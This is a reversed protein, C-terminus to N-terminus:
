LADGLLFSLFSLVDILADFNKQKNENDRMSLGQQPPFRIIVIVWGAENRKVIRMITTATPIMAEKGREGEDMGERVDM